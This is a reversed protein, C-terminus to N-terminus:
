EATGNDRGCESSRILCASSYRCCCESRSTDISVRAPRTPIPGRWKMRWKLAAAAPRAAVNLHQAHRRGLIQQLAAGRGDLTDARSDAVLIDREEATLELAM